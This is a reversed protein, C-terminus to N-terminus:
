ERVYRPYTRKAQEAASLDIDVTAFPQERSTLALVDGEEPEIIWGQGAWRLGSEGTGSRNSSLCFAGSTVASVRGGAVWKDASILPTARPCALVHVGAQGYARAHEMFWLDTCIMFGIKAPNTVVPTFDLEGREYWSAEWFGEEDPLYYKVHAPRYGSESDWIFGENLRKGNKHVPRSGLVTAPALESLRAMWDDHAAVAAEWVAPDVNRTSAVWPHFPMEPLLVLESAETKVHAVLAQWDKEFQNPNDSLECVTVKM